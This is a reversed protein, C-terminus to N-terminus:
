LLYELVSDGFDDSEKLFLLYLNHDDLSLVRDVVLTNGTIHFVILHDDCQCVHDRPYLSNLTDGLLTNMRQSLQPITTDICPLEAFPTDDYTNIIDLIGDKEEDEDFLDILGSFLDSGDDNENDNDTKEKVLAPRPLEQSVTYLISQIVKQATGKDQITCIVNRDLDQFADDSLLRTHTTSNESPLTVHFHSATEDLTHVKEPIANGAAYNIQVTLYLLAAIQAYVKAPLVVFNENERKDKLLLQYECSARKLYHATRKKFDSTACWDPCYLQNLYDLPERSKM